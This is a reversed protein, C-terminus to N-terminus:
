KKIYTNLEGDIILSMTTGRIFYDWTAEFATAEVGFLTVVENISYWRNELGLVIGYIHTPKINLKGNNTIYTGRLNPVANSYVEFNGNNFIFEEGESSEWTGNLAGDQGFVSGIIVMGLVFVIGLTRPRFKINTM